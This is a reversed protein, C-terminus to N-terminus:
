SKQKNQKESSIVKKFCFFTLIIIIGWAVTLFVIGSANIEM